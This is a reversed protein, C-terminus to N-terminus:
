LLGAPSEHMGRSKTMTADGKKKEIGKRYEGPEESNADPGETMKEIDGILKCCGHKRKKQPENIVGGPVRSSQDKDKRLKKERRQNLGPLTHM